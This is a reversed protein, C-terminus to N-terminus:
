ALGGTSLLKRLAGLVQCIKFVEDVESNGPFLPRLTYLEAMICGVAWIDIPSSYSSSKLLVEPARYWRTSVYDTYPPQSRIESPFIREKMLQYLNERMYEFVFFLHDNERIFEMLKVVNAHNLKKLSKVERLNLCEDLSYFKRKMEFAKFFVLMWGGAKRRRGERQLLHQHRSKFTLHLHKAATKWLDSTVCDSVLPNVVPSIVSSNSEAGEM